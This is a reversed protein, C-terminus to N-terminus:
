ASATPARRLPDAIPAPAGTPRTASATRSRTWCSRSPSSSSLRTSAPADLRQALDAPVFVTLGDGDLDIGLDGLYVQAHRGRPGDLVPRLRHRCTPTTTTATTSSRTPVPAINGCDADGALFTDLDTVDIEADGIAVSEDAGLVGGTDAIQLEFSLGAHLARPVSRTGTAAHDVRRRRASSTRPTPSRPSSSEEGTTTNVVTAGVPVLERRHVYGRRGSRRRTSDAEVTGTGSRCGSGLAANVPGLSATLGLDTGNVEVRAELGTTGYLVPTDGDLPIGIDFQGLAAFRVDFTGHTELGALAPLSTRRPRALPQRDTGTGDAHRRM